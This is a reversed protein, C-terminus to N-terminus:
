IEEVERNQMDDPTEDEGPRVGGDDIGSNINNNSNDINSDKKRGVVVIIVAIIVLVVISCILIKIKSSKTDM